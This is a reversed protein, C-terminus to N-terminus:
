ERRAWRSSLLYLHSYVSTNMRWIRIILLPFHNGFTAFHASRSTKKRGGVIRKFHKQLRQYSNYLSPTRPITKVLFRSVVSRPVMSYFPKMATYRPDAITQITISHNLVAKFRGQFPNLVTRFRTPFPESVTRFCYQNSIWVANGRLLDIDDISISASFSCHKNINETETKLSNGKKETESRVM